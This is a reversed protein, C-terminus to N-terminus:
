HPATTAADLLKDALGSFAGSLSEDAADSAYAQFVLAAEVQVAPGFVDPDIPYPEGPPWPFPWRRPWPFKKHPRTGCWDDVVEDFLPATEGGGLQVAIAADAVAVAARRAAFRLLEPPGPPLPQPNLGARTLVDDPLAPPLPQPNLASRIWQDPPGMPVIIDWLEPRIRALLVLASRVNAASM